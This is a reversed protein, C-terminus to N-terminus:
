ERVEERNRGTGVPGQSIAALDWGSAGVSEKPKMRAKIALRWFGLVAVLCASPIDSVM